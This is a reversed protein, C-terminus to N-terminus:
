KDQAEEIECFDDAKTNTGGAMCMGLESFGPKTNGINEPSKWEPCDKCFIKITKIVPKLLKKKSKKESKFDMLSTQRSDNSEETV